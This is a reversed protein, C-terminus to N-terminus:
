REIHFIKHGTNSEVHSRAESISKFKADCSQCEFPYRGEKGEKVQSPAEDIPESQEEEVPKLIGAASDIPTKYIDYEFRNNMIVYYLSKGLTKDLEVSLKVDETDPELSYALEKFKKVKVDDAGSFKKADDIAKTLSAISKVIGFAVPARLEEGSNSHLEFSKVWTPIFQDNRQYTPMIFLRHTKSDKSRNAVFVTDLVLAANIDPNEPNSLYREFDRSFAKVHRVLTRWDEPEIELPGLKPAELVKTTSM